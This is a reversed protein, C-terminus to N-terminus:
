RRSPQEVAQKILDLIRGIVFGTAATTFRWYRQFSERSPADTNIVRTTSTLLSQGPAISRVALNFTLKAYGPRNFNVFDAPSVWLMDAHYTWFKGIMGFVIERDREEALLIFPMEATDITDEPGVTTAALPMADHYLWRTVKDPLLHLAALWRVLADEGILHSLNDVATYVVHPEAAIRVQRVLEVEAIPMYRDLLLTDHSTCAVQEAQLKQQRLMRREALFAQMHQPLTDSEISINQQQHNFQLMLLYMGAGLLELITLAQLRNAIRAMHISQNGARHTHKM